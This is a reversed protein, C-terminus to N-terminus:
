HEELTYDGTKKAGRNKVNHDACGECMRLVDGGKQQVYFKAEANCPIYKTTSIFSAEQCRGDGAKLTLVSEAKSRELAMVSMEDGCTERLWEYICLPSCFKYYFSDTSHLEWERGSFEVDCQDCTM